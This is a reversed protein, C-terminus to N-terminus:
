FVSRETVCDIKCGQKDQLYITIRRYGYIKHFQEYVAQVQQMRERDPDPQELRKLWKYYAARSVGFFECM